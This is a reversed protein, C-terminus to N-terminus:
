RPASRLSYYGKRTSVTAEGVRQVAAPTLELKLRRFNGDRKANTSVFGLSYRTRLHAVIQTLNADLKKSEASVAIGGTAEAYTRISATNGILLRKYPNNFILGCVVSQTEHLKRFTSADSRPSIINQSTTDDTVAIIVKRSNPASAADLHAAAQFVGENLDTGRELGTADAALIAVSVLEKERTFQQVVRASGGFVMLAARDNDKLGALAMAAAAQLKGFNPAISASVDLLIVISLPLSDQSFHSIYQKVGDEYLLFDDKGLSALALRTKKSTVHADLVVLDASLSLPEDQKQERWVVAANSPWLTTATLFCVVALTAIMKM